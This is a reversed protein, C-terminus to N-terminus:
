SRRGHVAASWVLWQPVLLALAGIIDLLGMVYRFWQGWGIAAFTEVTQLSGTLKAAGIALFGLGLALRFVSTAITHRNRAIETM